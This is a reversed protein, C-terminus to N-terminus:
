LICSLLIATAHFRFQAETQYRYSIIWQLQAIPFQYQSLSYM